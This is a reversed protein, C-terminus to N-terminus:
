GTLHCIKCVSYIEIFESVTSWHVNNLMIPPSIFEREAEAFYGYIALLLKGYYLRCVATYIAQEAM